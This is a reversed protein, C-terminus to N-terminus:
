LVLQVFLRSVSRSHGQVREHGLSHHVQLSGTRLMMRMGFKEHFRDYLEKRTVGSEDLETFYEREAKTLLQHTRLHDIHLGLTKVRSRIAPESKNAKFKEEFL